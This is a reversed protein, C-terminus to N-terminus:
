KSRRRLKAPPLEVYDAAELLAVAEHPTPAIAAAKRLLPGAAADGLMIMGDMAAQRIEPDSHLLYPEIKPIESAEYTVAADHIEELIKERTTLPDKQGPDPQVPCVATGAERTASRQVRSSTVPPGSDESASDRKESQLLLSLAVILVISAGIILLGQQKRM